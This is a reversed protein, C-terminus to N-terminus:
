GAAHPTSKLDTAVGPEGQPTVRLRSDQGSSVPLDTLLTAMRTALKFSFRRLEPVATAEWYQAKLMPGVYSLWPIPQHQQDLVRLQEDVLIGFGSPAASLLGQELLHNVLPTDVRRIDLNPGTCNIIRSVKLSETAQGSRRKFDVILSKGLLAVNSLRGAHVALQGSELLHQFHEFTAPALRHRHVDWWPQVHRLFQRQQPTDMAGWLKQVWPRLSDVVARWDGGRRQHEKVRKRLTAMLQRPSGRGLHVPACLPAIAEPPHGLPLLGRRSLLHIPGRHGKQVLQLALDVATLGSGILLVATDPDSALCLPPSWPDHAYTQPHLTKNLNCCDAPPFNGFALVVHDAELTCGDSLTLRAGDGCPQVQIVEAVIRSLQVGPNLREARDLVDNLYNGYLSRSVYSTSEVNLHRSKCFRLFDEPDDDLASMKGVNANLLHLPSNTGYALGRAMVRTRNVLIIRLKTGASRLIQAAAAVGSFGAGVIVLTKM